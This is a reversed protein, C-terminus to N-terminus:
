TTMGVKKVLKMENSLFWVGGQSDPRRFTEYDKIEVEWFERREGSALEMNLHPAHPQALTHFGSRPAFGKKVLGLTAKIWVGIPLSKGREFFLPSVTGNPRVRLLKYARM